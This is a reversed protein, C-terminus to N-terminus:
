LWSRFVPLTLAVRLRPAQQQHAQAQDRRL